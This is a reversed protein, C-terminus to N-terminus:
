EGHVDKTSSPASVERVSLSRALITVEALLAQAGVINSEAGSNLNLIGDDIGDAVRGVRRDYVPAGAPNRGHFWERAQDALVAYKADGSAKALRTMVDTSTAVDIPSTLSRDFGSRIVDPFLADASRRAAVLLDPRKLYTSADALAAEQFHAWLHPEGREMVSNMLVGGEACAVLEDCWSSLLPRFGQEHDEGSMALVALIQLSRVDPPAPNEVIHPLGRRLAGAIRPDDLTASARALSLMARAQWFDGGALSTRAEVNLTGKWDRVFNVWRGDADQMGLVFDLLGECWQRTWALGTADWLDCYLELARAADDVCAVGEFGAERAPVLDNTASAYVALAVARSSLAPIAHGLRAIQRLM